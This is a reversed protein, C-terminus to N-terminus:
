NSRVSRRSRAPALPSYSVDVVTTDNVLDTRRVIVSQVEGGIAEAVAARLEPGDHYARDLTLQQRSTRKAVWEHDGIFLALLVAAMLGLTWALDLASTGALLGLALSAFYYAVEHQALEESRLRIISLVGFLGMGVGVSSGITSLAAMLALVGINVVLFAVILDRRQHRPVFLGFILITMAVLDAGVFILSM